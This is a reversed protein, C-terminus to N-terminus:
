LANWDAFNRNAIEEKSKSFSKMFVPDSMLEVSELVLDFENKWRLLDTVVSKNLTITEM